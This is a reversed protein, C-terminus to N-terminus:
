FDCLLGKVDGHRRVEIKCEPSLRNYMWRRQQLQESISRAVTCGGHTLMRNKVRGKPTSAIMLPLIQQGRPSIRKADSSVQLRENSIETGTSSTSLSVPFTTEENWALALSGPNRGPLAGALKIRLCNSPPMRWCTSSFRM